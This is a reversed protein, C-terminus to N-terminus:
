QPLGAGAPHPCFGGTGELHPFLGLLGPVGLTM